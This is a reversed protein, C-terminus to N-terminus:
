PLSSYPASSGCDTLIAASNEVMMIMRDYITGGLIDLSDEPRDRDDPDIPNARAGAQTTKSNNITDSIDEESPPMGSFEQYEQLLTSASYDSERPDPDKDRLTEVGALVLNGAVEKADANILAQRERDIIQTTLTDINAQAQAQVDPIYRVKVTSCRVTTPSLALVANLNAITKDAAAKLKNIAEEYPPLQALIEETNSEISAVSENDGNDYDRLDSPSGGSLGESSNLTTTILTNLIQGLADDLENASMLQDLQNDVLAKQTYDHVVIGPTKIEGWTGDSKKCPDGPNAGEEPTRRKSDPSANSGCWSLFGSGWSLEQARASKRQAVSSTLQSRAIQHLMYPNNQRQTTLGLWAKVGGQSWNGGLFATPNSSYQSLTSKNKTFFGQLSTDEAYSTRLSSVIAGAFPSDSNQTFLAFFTNAEGDGARRYNGLIDQVYQPEGSTNNGTITEILSSTIQQLIARIIVRVLPVLITQKWCSEGTINKDKESVDQVKEDSVPVSSSGGGVGGGGGGFGGEGSDSGNCKFITSTLGAEAPSPMATVVVVLCLLSFLFTRAIKVM